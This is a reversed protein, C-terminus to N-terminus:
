DIHTTHVHSYHLTHLADGSDCHQSCCNLHLEIKVVMLDALLAVMSGVMLVALLHVMLVALLAALLEVMLVALLAVLLM